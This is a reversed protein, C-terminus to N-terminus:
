APGNKKCGLDDLSTIRKAIVTTGGGRRQVVGRVGVMQVGAFLIWGSNQYCEEFTTIDMLGYEDELSFFVATRGSRTPPRHPRVVVGATWVRRGDDVRSLEASSLFGRAALRARRSDMPHGHVQIGLVGYEQRRKEAITFDPGEAPRGEDAAFFTNQGEPDLTANVGACLRSLLARRNPHLSDFAGGLVLGLVEDRPARVRGLFDELSSFLGKGQEELVAAVTRAAIGRVRSLPVRIAGNEVTFRTGSRNIDLPLLGVGRRRAIVCLTQPSYFGMPQNSLLAAFYEAPHHRALYATKYATVAFAAAHAECFGYGAYGRIGAFIEGATGEDVGNAVARAIFEEGIADMERGSRRHSMVRRLRDADGPSFGAVAKAIAIVQEQFLIVGYTKELIPALAPHAFRVPERGQRRAIYPEVMDGKIPGPRILAMSAVVDEMRDAGLRAQLARQAPSELQFVGVTEGARLMAFTRPDDESLHDYDFSGDTMRIDAAADEVASLARLSLIDFKMLGLDEVDDRDFQVIEVGKAAKQLPSVTVLPVGSLVLGGLHTGLYRPFGAVAACFHYLRYCDPTRFAPDQLEPYCELASTIIDAPWFPPMRKALRDLLVSEMGLAQGLDRLASRARYTQYTAVWAVHSTGGYRRSVYSAVEDRRRADFDIDIDPREARELSLFREFLLGRAIPDVATIGLCYAVASDAASGRGAFRIGQRRAWRVADWAILFYDGFGLRGIVALEHELRARIEKGLRGYRKEAGKQVLCRLLAFSDQGSPLPYRPLRVVDPDLSPRISEALVLTNGVARPHARFLRQMAAPSKLYLQDNLRRAPHVDDLVTGTRVCTLLDHVQFDDRAAFHVNNTAVTELDLREALEVLLRNLGGAGPTLDQILELYFRRGFLERYRRAADAAERLRGALILSPVEGHRCGSLAYLHSVGERLMPWTVRPRGRTNELHAATLLRCLSVYGDPGDALLVLHYGGALTVEAGQIPKLGAARCCRDFRVAGSVNDHDTLALAPMDAAAAAAVLDEIRSAGDQFSFPSHVHLHVFSVM